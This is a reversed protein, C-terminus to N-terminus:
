HKQVARRLLDRMTVVRRGAADGGTTEASSDLFEAKTTHGHPGAESGKAADPAKAAAGAATMADAAKVADSTKAADAAKSIDTGPIDVAKTANAAEEADVKQGAETANATAGEKKNGSGKLLTVEKRLSSLEAKLSNLGEVVTKPMLGSLQYSPQDGVGMCAQCRLSTDFVEEDEFGGKGFLYRTYDGTKDLCTVGVTFNAIDVGRCRTQVICSGTASLYTSLCSLPGFFAAHDGQEEEKATGKPLADHTVGKPSQQRPGSVNMSKDPTGKALLQKNGSPNAELVENHVIKGGSLQAYAATTCSDCPVGSDFFEDAEFGGIGYSHLKMANSRTVCAFSFDVASIDAEGCAVKIVCTGLNSKSLGVCGNPGFATASAEQQVPAHAELFLRGTAVGVEQSFAALLLLSRRARSPLRAFLPLSQPQSTAAM